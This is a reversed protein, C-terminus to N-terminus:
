FEANRTIRRGLESAAAVSGFAFPAFCASRWFSLGLVSALRIPQYM